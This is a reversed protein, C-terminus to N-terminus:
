PLKMFVESREAERFGMKEFMAISPANYAKIKAVLYQLRPFAQLVYTIMLHMAEWGYGKRRATREAIMIEVEGFRFDADPGFYVNTDGILRDGELVIFTLKDESDRWTSVMEYEEELTLPESGTLELIEPDKMWEHYTPVHADVYPVLSIRSGLIKTNANLKM